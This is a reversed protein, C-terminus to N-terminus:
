YSWVQVRSNGSDTVYIRGRGDVALGNPYNFQGDGIGQTGFSGLFELRENGSQFTRYVQVGQQTTDVVFVRDSGDIAIGRPLGLQGANSGRGVQSVLNGDKDLVLLRGNNSDTVYVYGNKDVAVGNPFSMGLSEGMTKILTGDRNLHHVAAAMGSLDTVWLTGDAGFAIGMPQWGTLSQPAKFEKVFSGDAKFVYIGGTPRDTVYVDGTQPDIADYVPGVAMNNPDVALEGVAAGGQDLIKVTSAQGSQVAFVRSGDATVAVGVPRSLDYMSTTYSPLQTTPIVPIVPIPQRFLLYWIALIFLGVFAALLLLLAIVKRKRRKEGTPTTTTGDGGTTVPPEADAPVAPVEATEVAM